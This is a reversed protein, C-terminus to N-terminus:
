PRKELEDRSWQFLQTATVGSQSLSQSLHMMQLFARVRRLDEYEVYSILAGIPKGRRTIVVPKDEVKKLWNSLNNRAEAVSIQM